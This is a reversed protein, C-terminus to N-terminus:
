YDTWMVPELTGSRVSLRGVVYVCVDPCRLDDCRHVDVGRPLKVRRRRQDKPEPLRGSLMLFFFFFFFFIFVVFFRTPTSRSCVLLDLAGCVFRRKAAATSVITEPISQYGVCATNLDVYGKNTVSWATRILSLAPPEKLM